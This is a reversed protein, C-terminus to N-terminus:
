ASKSANNSMTYSGAVTVDNLASTGTLTGSLTKSTGTLALTGDNAIFTGNNTYNGAVSLTSAPATVTGSIEGTDPDITLGAPLGTAGYSLTDGDVDSFNFDLQLGAVPIM